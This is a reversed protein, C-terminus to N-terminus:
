PEIQTAGVRVRAVGGALARRVAAVKPRMGARLAGAAELADLGARDLRPLLSGPDAPDALVGPAGTLLVLEPARLAVAVEAAVTDANVNLVEGHAGVALPAVVPVALDVLRLVVEPDVSVIDGVLGFDVEREVGDDDRIRVPPRRRAMIWGLDVGCLGVAGIGHAALAQVWAVSARGRWQEVALAMLAESTIRRGAVRESGIGAAAAAQDLQPGGGHVLVVPEGRARQARVCAIVQAPDDLLAGGAKVVM